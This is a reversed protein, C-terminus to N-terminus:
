SSVEEDSLGIIVVSMGVLMTLWFGAWMYRGYHAEYGFAFGDIIAWLWYWGLRNKDGVLRRKRTM